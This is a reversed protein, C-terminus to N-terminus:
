DNGPQNNQFFRLIGPLASFGPHPPNHLNKECVLGSRQWQQCLLPLNKARM